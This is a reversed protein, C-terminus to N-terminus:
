SLFTTNSNISNKLVDGCNKFDRAWDRKKDMNIDIEKYFNVFRNLDGEVWQHIQQLYIGLSVVKNINMGIVKKNKHKEFLKFLDCLKDVPFGRTKTISTNGDRICYIGSGVMLLEGHHEFDWEGLKKSSYNLKETSIFSDTFVSVASDYNNIVVELVNLRTNGTIISAYVPCFLNGTQWKRIYIEEKGKEGVIKYTDHWERGDLKEWKPSLQFFKGYLGNLIIKFADAIEPYKKKIRMRERFIDPVRKFPKVIEDPYFFWGDLLELNGLNNDIIFNYEQLTLYVIKNNCRPYINLGNKIFTKVAYDKNDCSYKCKLFGYYPTDIIRTNKCWEGKSIDILNAIENAYAARIDYCYSSEFYGKRYLEFRGGSYSKYAYRQYGKNKFIPVDSTNMFYKASIYAQSYPKELTMGVKAFSEQLKIGLDRTLECDVICYKALKKRNKLMYKKTGLKSSNISFKSRNLYRKSAIDLPLKYFQWLDYYTYVNKGKTFSLYKRPIYHLKVNQYEAKTFNHLKEQIDRPLYKFIAQIDYQINYFFNLSLRLSERTLFKVCDLFSYCEQYKKDSDAILWCLGDITETDVGKIVKTKPKHKSGRSQKKWIIHGYNNCKM